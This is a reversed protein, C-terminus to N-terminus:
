PSLIKQPSNKAPSQKRPTPAMALRFSRDIITFVDGHCLKVTNVIAETNVEVAHSADLNVLFIEKNENVEIRCHELGVQPLQIRIDCDNSRGFLCTPSTLPFSAGDTGNRKIVVINAFYM